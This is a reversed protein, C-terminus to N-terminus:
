EPKLDVQEVGPVAGGLFRSAVSEFSKPKDTVLLQLSGTSQRASRM